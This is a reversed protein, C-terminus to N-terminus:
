AELEGLRGALALAMAGDLPLKRLAWRLARIGEEGEVSLFAEMEEHTAADASAM